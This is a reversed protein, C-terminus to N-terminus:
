APDNPSPLTRVEIDAVKVGFVQAIARMTFKSPSRMGCEWRAVTERGVHLRKALETQTWGRQIRLAAITPGCGQPHMKRRVGGKRSNCSRCLVQLNDLDDTGGGSVPIIHDIDLRTTAGCTRCVAGDREYILDRIEPPTQKWARAERSTGISKARESAGDARAASNTDM